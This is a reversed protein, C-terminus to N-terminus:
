KQQESQTIEMIRDELDGICEETDSIQSNMAELTNKIEFISNDIKSQTIKITELDKNFHDTNPKGPPATTSLGGATAPSTPEHGPRPLDWRGRLPQARSGHGSLRHGAVPSAVVTLLGAYRM